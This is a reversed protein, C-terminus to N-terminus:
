NTLYKRVLWKAPQFHYSAASLAAAFLWTSADVWQSNSIFWLGVFFLIVAAAGDLMRAHNLLNCILSKSKM